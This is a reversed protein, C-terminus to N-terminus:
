VSVSHRWQANHLSKKLVSIIGKLWWPSNVRCKDFPSDPCLKWGCTWGPWLCRFAYLRTSKFHFYDSVTIVINCTTMRANRRVKCDNYEWLNHKAICSTKAPKKQCYPFVALLNHNLQLHVNGWQLVQCCASPDLPLRARQGLADGQEM